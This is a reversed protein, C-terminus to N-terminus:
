EKPFFFFCVTLFWGTTLLWARDQSKYLLDYFLVVFSIIIIYILLIIRNSGLLNHYIHKVMSIKAYLIIKWLSYWRQWIFLFSVMFQGFFFFLVVFTMRFLPHLYLICWWKYISFTYSLSSVKLFLNLLYSLIDSM